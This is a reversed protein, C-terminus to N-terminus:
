KFVEENPNFGNQVAREIAKIRRYDDEARFVPHDMGWPAGLVEDAAQQAWAPWSSRLPWQYEARARSLGYWRAEARRDLWWLLGGFILISGAFVLWSLLESQPSAPGESGPFKGGAIEM